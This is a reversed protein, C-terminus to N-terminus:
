SRRPDLQAAVDAAQAIKEVVDYRGAAERVVREVEPVVHGPSVAFHAPHARIQEYEDLTLELQEACDDKACECVFTQFETLTNMVKNIRENVERFLSQNRAAREQRGEVTEEIL